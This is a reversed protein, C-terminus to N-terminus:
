TAKLLFLKRRIEETFAARFESVIVSTADMTKLQGCEYNSVM